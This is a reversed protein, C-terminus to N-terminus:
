AKIKHIAFSVITLAVLSLLGVVALLIIAQITYGPTSASLGALSIATSGFTFVHDEVEGGEAFGINELATQTCFGNEDVEGTLPVLRFRAYFSADDAVDEPLPFSFQNDGIMVAANQIIYEGEDDFSFDPGGFADDATRYDLWGTLCGVFGESPVDANVIVTLEGQTDSWNSGSTPYVGEEDDPAQDLDDGLAAGDPIGDFELDKVNGLILNQETQLHRAGNNALTTIGFNVPLDGFDMTPAVPLAFGAGLVLLSDPNDSVLSSSDCKASIVEITTQVGSPTQTTSLTDWEEGDGSVLADCYETGDVTIVDPRLALAEGSAIFYEGEGINVDPSIPFQIPDIVGADGQFGSFAYDTHFKLQVRSVTADGADEYVVFLTAGSLFELNDATNGDALDFTYSGPSTFAAQVLATVDYGYGAGTHNYFNPIYEKGISEGAIPTGNFVLESDGCNSATCDGVQLGGWVLVAYSVDGGIDIVIAETGTDLDYLGVGAANLMLGVGQADFDFITQAMALSSAGVLLVVIAVILIRVLDRKM